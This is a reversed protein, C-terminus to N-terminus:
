NQPIVGSSPLSMESSVLFFSYCCFAPSPPFLTALCASGAPNTQLASFSCPRGPVQVRPDSPGSASGSCSDKREEQLQLYTNLNTQAFNPSGVWITWLRYSPRSSSCIEYSDGPRPILRSKTPGEPSRWFSQIAPFKPLTPISPKERTWDLHISWVRPRRSPGQLPVRTCPDSTPTCFMPNTLVHGDLM